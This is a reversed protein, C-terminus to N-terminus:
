EIKKDKLIQKYIYWGLTLFKLSEEVSIESHKKDAETNFLWSMYFEGIQQIKETSLKKNDIDDALKRLFPSLICNPDFDNNNM